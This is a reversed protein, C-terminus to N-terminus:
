STFALPRCRLNLINRYGDVQVCLSFLSHLVKSQQELFMSLKSKKSFPRPSIEGGCKGFSKELFVKRM